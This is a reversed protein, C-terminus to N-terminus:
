PQCRARRAAISACFLPPAGGDLAAAAFSLHEGLAVIERDM